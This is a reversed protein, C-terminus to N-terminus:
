LKSLAHKIIDSASHSDGMDAEAIIKHAELRNYGLAILGELAELEQPKLQNNDTNTAHTAKALAMNAVKDKLEVIIRNATKAGIGQAQSLLKKDQDVIAQTLIAPPLTSLINLAAKGGIGQVKSLLLFWEHEAVELFGYLHIHDERVITEIWLSVQDGVSPLNSITQTSCFTHYGVGGVNIICSPSDVKLLIGSLYSIM